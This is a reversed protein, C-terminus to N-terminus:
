ESKENKNRWKKLIIMLIMLALAALCSAIIVVATKSSKKGNKASNEEESPTVTKDKEERATKILVDLTETADDLSNLYNFGEEDAGQEALKQLMKDVAEQKKDAPIESFSNAEYEKLVENAVKVIADPDTSEIVKRAAENKTAELYNQKLEDFSEYKKGGGYSDVRGNVYSVVNKQQEETLSNFDDVGYSQIIQEVSSILYDDSVKDGPSSSKKTTTTQEQKPADKGINVKIPGCSLKVDEFKENFTDEQSYTVSINYEGDDATGKVKYTMIFLTGDEKVEANDSWVVDFKGKVSYYDTITTNFLGNATLSGSSVDTLVLQNDPYKVSIKFGMLGKNGSLKIPITVSEGRKVYIDDAKVIYSDDAYAVIFNCVSVLMVAFSIMVAILRKM